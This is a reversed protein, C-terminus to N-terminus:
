HKGAVTACAYMKYHNAGLLTSAATKDSSEQLFCSSAQLQIDPQHSRLSRVYAIFRCGYFCLLSRLSAPTCRQSIIILPKAMVPAWFCMVSDDLM